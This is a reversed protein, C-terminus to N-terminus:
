QTVCIEGGGDNPITAPQRGYHEALFKLAGENLHFINLAGENLHDNVYNDQELDGTVFQFCGCCPGDNDVNIYVLGRWSTALIGGM